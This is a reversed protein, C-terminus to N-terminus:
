VQLFQESVSDAAIALSKVEKNRPGAHRSNQARLAFLVIIETYTFWM